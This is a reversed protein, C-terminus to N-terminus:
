ILNLLIDSLCNLFTFTVKKISPHVNLKKRLIRIESVKEFGNKSEIEKPKKEIEKVNFVHRHIKYPLM